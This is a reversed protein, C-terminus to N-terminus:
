TSLNQPEKRAGFKLDLAASLLVGMVVLTIGAGAEKSPVADFFLVDWLLAFLVGLYSVISVAGPRGAQYSRTMFYQATQVLVGTLILTAWEMPTPTMWQTITMPLTLPVTILPFYLMIVQPDESDKLRAICNYALASSLAGAVGISLERWQVTPDFGKLVAVGLFSLGFCFWRRAPVQERVAFAGVLATFIPSLYQIVTATALPLAHLTTFYAVLGGTGFVGRLVLLRKNKGWMDAGRARLVALSLIGAVLARFFVVEVVPLRPVLKVCVAMASFFFAAIAM